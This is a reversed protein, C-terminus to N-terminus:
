TEGDVGIRMALQPGAPRGVRGRNSGPALEQHFRWWIAKGAFAPIWKDTQQASSPHAEAKRRPPPNITDHGQVMKNRELALSAIQPRRAGTRDLNSRRALRTECHRHWNSRFISL